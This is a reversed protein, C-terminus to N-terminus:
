FAIYIGSSRLNLPLGGLSVRGQRGPAAGGGEAGVEVDAPTISSM